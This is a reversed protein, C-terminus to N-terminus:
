AAGAPSQISLNIVKQATSKGDKDIFMDAIISWANKKKGAEKYSRCQTNWLCPEKRILEIMVEPDYEISEDFKEVTDIPSSDLVGQQGYQEVIPVQEMTHQQQEQLLQQQQIQNLLNLVNVDMNSAM